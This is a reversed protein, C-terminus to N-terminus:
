RVFFLIVVLFPFKQDDVINLRAKQAKILSCKLGNLSPQKRLILKILDQFKVAMLTYRCLYIDINKVM